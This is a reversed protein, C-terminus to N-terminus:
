FGLLHLFPEFRLFYFNRVKSQRILLAKTPDLGFALLSACASKTNWNLIDRTKPLTMSHLNAISFIARADIENQLRKWQHIAGFYNGLTFSGTPQIGSFITRM